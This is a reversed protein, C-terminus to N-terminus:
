KGRAKIKKIVDRVYKNTERSSEGAKIWDLLLNEIVDIDAQTGYDSLIDLIPQRIERKGSQLLTILTDHIEQHPSQALAQRAAQLGADRFRPMSSQLDDIVAENFGRDGPSLGKSKPTLTSRPVSSNQNNQSWTQVRVPDNGFQFPTKGMISPLLVAVSGALIFLLSGLGVIPRAIRNGFFFAWNQFLPTRTVWTRRRLIGRLVSVGMGAFLAGVTFPGWLFEIGRLLHSAAGILMLVGSTLLVPWWFEWMLIPNPGQRSDSSQSM